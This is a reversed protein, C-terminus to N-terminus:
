TLSHLTCHAIWVLFGLVVTILHTQSSVAGDASQYVAQKDLFTLNSILPCNIIGVERLQVM